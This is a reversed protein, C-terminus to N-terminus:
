VLSAPPPTPPGVWAPDVYRVPGLFRKSGYGPERQRREDVSSHAAAGAPVSRHQYTGLAWIKGM